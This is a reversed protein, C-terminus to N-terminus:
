KEGKGREVEGMWRRMKKKRINSVAMDSTSFNELDVNVERKINEFLIGELM